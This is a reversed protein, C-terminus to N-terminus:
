LDMMQVILVHTQSYLDREMEGYTLFFSCVKTLVSPQAGITNENGAEEESLGVPKLCCLYRLFM